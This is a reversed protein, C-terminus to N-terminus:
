LLSQVSYTLIDGAKQRSRSCRVPTELDWIIGQKVSGLDKM